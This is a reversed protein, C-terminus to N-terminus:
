NPNPNGIWLIWFFDLGLLIAFIAFIASIASIASIAIWVFDLGFLIASIIIKMQDPLLVFLRWLSYFILVISSYIVCYM